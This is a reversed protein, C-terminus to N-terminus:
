IVEEPDENVVADETSTKSQDIPPPKVTADGINSTAETRTDTKTNVSSDALDGKSQKLDGGVETKNGSIRDGAAGMLSDAFKVAGGTVIGFKVTSATDSSYQRKTKNEEQAWVIYADWVNTGPKCVNSEKGWVSKVMSMTERHMLAYAKDDVSLSAYQAREKQEETKMWELCANVEANNIQTSLGADTAMELPSQTACSSLLTATLLVILSKMIKMEFERNFKVVHKM